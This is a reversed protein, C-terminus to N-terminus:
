KQGQATNTVDSVVGLLNGVIEAHKAMHAPALHAYRRVMETSKWGGMEQLDYMPTGNQVLWSAWTHRLDHWRFNEIGARALASRWGRTNVQGIPRGAYTFVREPHKGLRRQLLEVSLQSLSVHIDEKGKAKDGPIWATKRNLDVQNWALTVVNSQRLGTALAFLVIDRQHVPLESLLCNAQEPTLWRVRRKAEKYLKVQPVRDIWEWEHCAKRLIARILALYRNATPGSAETRKREGIALIEERTIAALEKGRFFQQLWALKNVDGQHTRKHETAILWQCGADDWTYKPKDGLKAVRWSEAKLKDHLEKAEAKSETEASCRVREGSATTFDIWWTSGRKYLSM